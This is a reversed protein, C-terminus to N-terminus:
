LAGIADEAGDRKADLPSAAGPATDQSPAVDHPAADRALPVDRPGSDVATWGGSLPSRARVGRSQCGLLTVAVALAAGARGTGVAALRSIM